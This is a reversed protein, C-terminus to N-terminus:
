AYATIDDALIDRIIKEVECLNLRNDLNGTTHDYRAMMIYDTVARVKHEHAWRMVEGYDDKNQKM